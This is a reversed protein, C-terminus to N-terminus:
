AATAVALKTATGIPNAALRWRKEWPINGTRTELGVKGFRSVLCLYSRHGNRAPRGLAVIRGDQGLMRRLVLLHQEVIDLFAIPDCPEWQRSILLNRAVQTEAQRELIPFCVPLEDISAKLQLEHGDSLFVDASCLRNLRNLKRAVSEALDVTATLRPDQPPFFIISTNATKDATSLLPSSTLANSIASPSKKAKHGRRASATPSTERKVQNVARALERIAAENGAVAALEALGGGSREAQDLLMRIFNTTLTVDSLFRKNVGANITPLKFRQAIAVLERGVERRTEPYRMARQLRKTAGLSALSRYVGFVLNVALQVNEIFEGSIINRTKTEAM